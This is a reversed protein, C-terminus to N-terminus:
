GRGPVRQTLTLEASSWSGAGVGAGAAQPEGPKCTQTRCSHLRKAPTLINKVAKLDKDALLPRPQKYRRGQTFASVCNRSRSMCCKFGLAESLCSPLYVKNFFLFLIEQPRILCQYSKRPKPLIKNQKEPIVLLLLSSISSQYQYLLGTHAPLPTIKINIM